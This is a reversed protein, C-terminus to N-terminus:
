SLYRIKVGLEDFVRQEENTTSEPLYVTVTDALGVKKLEDIFACVDEPDSFVMPAKPKGGAPYVQVFWSKSPM